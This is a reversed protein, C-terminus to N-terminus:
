KLYECFVAFAERRVGRYLGLQPSYKDSQPLDPTGVSERTMEVSWTWGLDGDPSRVDWIRGQTEVQWTDAEPDILTSEVTFDFTGSLARKPRDNRYLTDTGWAHHRTGIHTGAEDCQQTWRQRSETRKMLTFDYVEYEPDGKRLGLAKACPEALGGVTTGRASAPWQGDPDVCTQEDLWSPASTAPETLASPAPSPSADEQRGSVGTAPAIVMLILVIAIGLRKV